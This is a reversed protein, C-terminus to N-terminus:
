LMEKLRNEIYSGDDDTLGFCRFLVRDIADQIPQSETGLSSREGRNSLERSSEITQIRICMQEIASAVDEPM